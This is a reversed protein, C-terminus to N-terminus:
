CQGEQNVKVLPAKQFGEQYITRTARNSGPHKQSKTLFLELPSRHTEKRKKLCKSVHSTWNSLIHINSGDDKKVGLWIPANCNKLLCLIDVDPYDSKQIHINIKYHKHEQLLHFMESQKRIWNVIKERLDEYIVEFDYDHQAAVQFRDGVGIRMWKSPPQLTPLKDLAFRQKVDEIFNCIRAQRGPTFVHSLHYHCIIAFKM